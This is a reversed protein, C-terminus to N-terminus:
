PLIKTQLKKYLSKIYSKGHLQRVLSLNFSLRRKNDTKLLDFIKRVTASSYYKVPVQNGKYLKYADIGSRKPKKMLYYEGTLLHFILLKQERTISPSKRKQSKTM